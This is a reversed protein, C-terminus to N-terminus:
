PHIVTKCNLEDTTMNKLCVQLYLTGKLAQPIVFTAKNTTKKKAKMSGLRSWGGTGGLPNRARVNFIAKDVSLSSVTVFVLNHTASVKLNFETANESDNTEGPPICLRQGVKLNYPYTLHNAKAIVKWKLGFTQAITVTTDGSKVIYYSDCTAAQAPQPLASSWVSLILLTALLRVFLSSRKPKM